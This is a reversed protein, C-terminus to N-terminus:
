HCTEVFLPLEQVSMVFSVDAVNDSEPNVTEFLLSKYRQVKFLPEILLLLASKDTFAALTAPVVLASWPIQEFADAVFM